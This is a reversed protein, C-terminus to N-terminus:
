GNQEPKQQQLKEAVMNALKEYDIPEQINWKGKNQRIIESAIQIRAAVWELFRANARAIGKVNRLFFPINSGQEMERQYVKAGDAVLQLYDSAIRSAIDSLNKATDNIHGATEEPKEM